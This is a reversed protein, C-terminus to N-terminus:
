EPQAIGHAVAYTAAAARNATGIKKYINRLHTAVTSSSIFLAHGIEDNSLGQAVLRLVEAERNSLGDPWSPQRADAGASKQLAEIQPQLAQM